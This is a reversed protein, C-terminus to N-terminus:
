LAPPKDEAKNIFLSPELWWGHRLHGTKCPRLHIVGGIWFSFKNEDIWKISFGLGHIFAGEEFGGREDAQAAHYVKWGDGIEYLRDGM